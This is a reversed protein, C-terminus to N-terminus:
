TESEDDEAEENAWEPRAEKLSGFRDPEEKPAEPEIVDVQPAVWEAVPQPESERGSPARGGVADKKAAERRVWPYAGVENAQNFSVTDQINRSEDWKRVGQFAKFQLNRCVLVVRNGKIDHREDEMLAKREPAIEDTGKAPNMTISISDSSSYCKLSVYDKSGGEYTVVVDPDHLNGGGRMVNAIPAKDFVGRIVYGARLKEEVWKEFILGVHNYVYSSGASNDKSLPPRSLPELLGLVDKQWAVGEETSALKTPDGIVRGRYELKFECARFVMLKRLLKADNNLRAREILQDTLDEVDLEFYDGALDLSQVIEEVKAEVRKEKVRPASPATHGNRHYIEKVRSWIAVRERLAQNQISKDLRYLWSHFTDADERQYPDRGEDLWKSAVFDLLDNKTMVRLDAEGPEGAFGMMKVAERKRATVVKECFAKWNKPVKIALYDETPIREAPPVDLAYARRDMWARLAAKGENTGADEEHDRAFEAAYQDMLNNLRALEQEPTLRRREITWKKEIFKYKEAPHRLAKADTYGLLDLMKDLEAHDWMPIHLRGAPYGPLCVISDAKRNKKHKVKVERLIQELYAWAIPGMKTASMIEDKDSVLASKFIAFGERFVKDLGKYMQSTFLVFVIGNLTNQAAEFEHRLTTFLKIAELLEANGGGRSSYNKLADDIILITVPTSRDRLADVLSPLHDSIYVSCKDPGYHKVLEMSISVCTVTKGDGPSSFIPINQFIVEAAEPIKHTIASFFNRTQDKLDKNGYTNRTKVVTYADDKADARVLSVQRRRAAIMARVDDKTFM